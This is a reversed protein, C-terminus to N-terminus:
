SFPKHQEVDQEPEGQGADGHETESNEVTSSEEDAVPASEGSLKSQNPVAYKRMPIPYADDAHARARVRRVRKLADRILFIVFVVIVLTALFGITGPTVLDPDPGGSPTADQAAVLIM